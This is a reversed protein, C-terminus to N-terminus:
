NKLPVVESPVTGSELLPVAMSSTVVSGTAALAIVAWYKPSELKAPLVEGATM